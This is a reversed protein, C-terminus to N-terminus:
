KSSEKTLYAVSAQRGTLASRRYSYYHRAESYTCARSQHVQMSGLSLQKLKFEAIGSLDAYWKGSIAGPKFFRTLAQEANVFEEYVEQGVEFCDQSIAPGIWAHFRTCNVRKNQMVAWTNELVGAALGRWGAHAAAIITGAENWMIVPLCDATLIALVRDPRTTVAADVRRQAESGLDQQDADLVEAGHVQTLWLPQNPLNAQLYLRERNAYVQAPEDPTNLGLNLADTAHQEDQVLQRRTCFYRVGSFAPGSIGEPVLVTKSEM